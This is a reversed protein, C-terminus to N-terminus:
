GWSVLSETFFEPALGSCTNGNGKLIAKQEPNLTEQFGEILASRQSM